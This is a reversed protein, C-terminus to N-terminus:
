DKSAPNALAQDLENLNKVIGNFANAFTSLQGIAKTLAANFEAYQTAMVPSSQQLWLGGASTLLETVLTQLRALEAAIEGGESTLRGAVAQVSDYDVNVEPM